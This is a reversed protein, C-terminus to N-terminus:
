SNSGGAFGPRNLGKWIHPGFSTGRSGSWAFLLQGDRIEIKKLYQGDYYNFDDSGNLNQIRIIPLGSARWEYPKFGRGNILKCVHRIPLVSWDSPITGVDTHKSGGTAMEPKADDVYASRQARADM